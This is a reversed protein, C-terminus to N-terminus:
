LVNDFQKILDNIWDPRIEAHYVSKIYTRLAKQRKESTKYRGWILLCEGLCVLERNTLKTRADSLVEWIKNSDVQSSM